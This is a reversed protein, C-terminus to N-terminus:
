TTRRTLAEAIDADLQAPTKKPVTELIAYKPSMRMEVTKKILDRGVHRQRREYGPPVVEDGEANVEAKLRKNGRLKLAKCSQCYGGTVAATKTTLNDCTKCKMRAM